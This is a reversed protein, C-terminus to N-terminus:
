AYVRSKLDNVTIKMGSDFPTITYGLQQIAKVSSYMHNYKLRDAFAPLLYPPMGTIATKLQELQSYWKIINQPVKMLRFDKGSVQKLTTFFADYSVDEGGLIYRNGVIGKNMAAIHGEVVDDLYAYNSVQRGSGPKIRWNGKLYALIMKGVTNSDTVPGEGYVRSPNVIVVPVGQEVFIKVMLEALYKTREYNIPYGTIRPDTETIPYLRTPGWVGCTSTHVLKKIGKLQAAELVNKTGTVNIDYFDTKKRTWMKALAATHYVQDCNDMATVLSEKCLIDGKFPQINKHTPLFPHQMNRCLANVLYGQEALRMCIRSGIFGTSGTVLVKM